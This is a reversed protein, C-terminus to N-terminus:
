MGRRDDAGDTWRDNSEGRETKPLANVKRTYCLGAIAQLFKIEDGAAESFAPDLGIEPKEHSGTGM